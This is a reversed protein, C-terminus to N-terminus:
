DRQAPVMSQLFAPVLCWLMPLPTVNGDCAQPIRGIEVCQIAPWDSCAESRLILKLFASCLLAVIIYLIHFIIHKSGRLCMANCWICWIINKKADDYSRKLISDLFHKKPSFIYYFMSNPTVYFQNWLARITWHMSFVFVDVAHELRVAQKWLEILIWQTDLSVVDSRKHSILSPTSIGLAELELFSALSRASFSRPTSAAGEAGTSSIGRAPRVQTLGPLATRIMSNGRGRTVSCRLVFCETVRKVGIGPCAKVSDASWVEYAEALQAFKEKAQPDDKNTDPHYKKAM